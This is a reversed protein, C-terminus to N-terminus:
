YNRISRSSNRKIVRQVRGDTHAVHWASQQQNEEVLFRQSHQYQSYVIYPVAPVSCWSICGNSSLVAGFFAGFCM